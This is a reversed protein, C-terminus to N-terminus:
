RGGRLPGALVRGTDAFLIADGLTRVGRDMLRPLMRLYLEATMLSDGLATHRGLPAIGHRCAIAALDLDKESPDLAAALRATDLALPETWPLRHRSAAAGLMELDFAIHHGLVVAGSLSEQLRPWIEGIEPAQAVMANTIRHIATASVPILRGPRVLTDFTSSRFLQRGYLRATGVAVIRDKIVNLGTTETDLSVLPLDELLTARTPEACSPPKEHLSLDVEIEARHGDSDGPLARFVIVAGADGKLATVVSPLVKGDVTAISAGVPHALTRARALSEAVSSRSLRSFLSTGLVGSESGLARRAAFNAASVLGDPTTVLVGDPLAAIVEALRADPHGAGSQALRRAITDRLESIESIPPTDGHLAPLVGDAGAVLVAGRTTEVGAALRSGLLGLYALVAASLGAAPLILDAAHIAGYAVGLLALAGLGVALRLRTRFPFRTRRTRNVDSM